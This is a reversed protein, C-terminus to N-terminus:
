SLRRRTEQRTRLKLEYRPMETIPLSSACLVGDKSLIYATEAVGGSLIYDVYPKYAEAM